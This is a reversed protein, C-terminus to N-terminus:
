IKWPPADARPPNLPKRRRMEAFVGPIRLLIQKVVHPRPNAAIASSPLKEISVFWEPVAAAVVCKSTKNVGASKAASAPRSRLRDTHTTNSTNRAVVDISVASDSPARPTTGAAAMGAANSTCPRCGPAKNAPSRSPTRIVRSNVPRISKSRPFEGRSNLRSTTAPRIIMM